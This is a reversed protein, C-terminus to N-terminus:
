YLISPYARSMFDYFDNILQYHIRVDIYTPNSKGKRRNDRADIFRLNKWCMANQRGNSDLIDYASMPYVHDVHTFISNFCYFTNCYELWLRLWEPSFGVLDSTIVPDITDLANIVYNLRARLIVSFRYADETQYRNRRYENIADRNERQYQKQYDRIENRYDHRYQRQYDLIEERNDQYYQKSQERICDKCAARLTGAQKNLYHYETLPKLVECKSCYKSPVLDSNM